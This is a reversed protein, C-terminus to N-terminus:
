SSHDAPAIEPKPHFDGDNVILGRVQFDKQTDGASRASRMLVMGPTSVGPFACTTERTLSRWSCM